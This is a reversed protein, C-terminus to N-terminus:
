FDFENSNSDIKGGVKCAHQEFDLRNEHAVVSNERPVCLCRTSADYSNWIKAAHQPKRFVRSFPMAQGTWCLRNYYVCRRVYLLNFISWAHTTATM